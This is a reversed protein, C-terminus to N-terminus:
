ANMRAGQVAGFVLLKYIYDFKLFVRSRSICPAFLFSLVKSLSAVFHLEFLRGPCEIM